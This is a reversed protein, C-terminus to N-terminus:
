STTRYNLVDGSDVVNYQQMRKVRLSDEILGIRNNLQDHTLQSFNSKSMVPLGKNSIDPTIEPHSFLLTCSPKNKSALYAFTAHVDKITSIPTGNIELLWAGCLRTRWRPIRAGPISPAMSALLLCGNKEFFCLGVSRHMTIDFKRLDLEEEFASGYQDPSVYIMAMDSAGILYETVVDAAIHKKLWPGDNHSLRAARAAIMNPADTIWLPLPVFLSTLSAAWSQANGTCKPALLPWPVTVPTISGAPTPPLPGDHSTYESDAELGLDYLLQAAPPLTQQLYWAEDFVAHHCSKVIGSDLDLYIINQDTTTYGLFIGTFNHRDPKCRRSGTRKVCVRSGFTKLHMVDLKRGYWGEYPTRDTASHVLRNHLYVAHLLASSWFRAPLGAGYLLTRVKVALTHNYSEAGGNQSPSDM